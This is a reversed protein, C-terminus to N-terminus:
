LHVQKVNLFLTLAKLVDEVITVLVLNIEQVEHISSCIKIKIDSDKVKDLILKARIDYIKNKNKITNNSNKM